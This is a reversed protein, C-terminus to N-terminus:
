PVPPDGGRQLLDEATYQGTAGSMFCCRVAPNLRQLVALTRPGDLLPMRVDLLVLDIEGSRRAYVALAEEGGAASWVTSGQARLALGLLRRVQPEDDVVLIGRSPPLAREDSVQTPGLVQPVSPRPDSM